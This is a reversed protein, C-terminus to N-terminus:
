KAGNWPSTERVMSHLENSARRANGHIDSFETEREKLYTREVQRRLHARALRELLVLDIVDRVVLVWVRGCSVVVDIVKGFGM